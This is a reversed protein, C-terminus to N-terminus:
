SQIGRITINGIAGLDNPRSFQVGPTMKAIDDLTHVNNEDMKQQTFATISVPVKSQNEARRTATVTVEQLGEPASANSDQARIGAGYLIQAVSGTLLIAKSVKRSSRM